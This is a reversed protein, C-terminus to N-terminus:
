NALRLVWKGGHSRECAEESDFQVQGRVDKLVVNVKNLHTKILNRLFVDQEQQKLALLQADTNFVCVVKLSAPFRDYNVEHTLWQFGDVSILAIDCVEILENRIANDIKKDTKRM